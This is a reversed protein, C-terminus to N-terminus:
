DENWETFFRKSTHFDIYAAQLTEMRKLLQQVESKETIQMLSAANDFWIELIADYPEESGRGERLQNNASVNLTLNKCIRNAGAQVTFESLLQNLEPGLWFKRFTESSVEPGSKICHIFRIM